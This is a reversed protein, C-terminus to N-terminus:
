KRIQFQRVICPPEKSQFAALAAASVLCGGIALVRAGVTRAGPGQSARARM